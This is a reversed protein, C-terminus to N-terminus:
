CPRAPRLTNRPGRTPRCLVATGPSHTVPSEDGSRGDPETVVPADAPLSQAAPPRQPETSPHAYQAGGESPEDHAEGTIPDHAPARTAPLMGLAAMYTDLLADAEARENSDLKRLRVVKKITPVDFGSGKAEAYIDRKDSNLEAIEEEVREIREIFARLHDRAIGYTM